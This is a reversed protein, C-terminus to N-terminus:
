QHIHEETLIIAVKGDVKSGGIGQHGNAALADDDAFRGHDCDILIVLSDKGDADLGLAHQATSRAIDNGNARQLVANDGVEIHRLSHKAVKDILGRLLAIRPRRTGANNDADGGANGANLLTGDKFRGNLGSSALSVEDLLGHGSRDAGIKGDLLRGSGHDDIDAAASGLDRDDGHAADNNRLRDTNRAILEVLRDEGM